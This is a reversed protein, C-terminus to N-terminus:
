TQVDFLRQCPFSVIRSKVGQERLRNGADVAFAMESGVGIITLDAGEHEIFIYAGRAVGERRSHHPYQTLAHRSLSIMTPTTEAELAVTFASCTDESDCPRIYLLNPMARFLAALEIPQHAPGDDGLAISDHTAIHIAQLGQIALM